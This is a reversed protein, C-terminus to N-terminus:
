STVPSCKMRNSWCGWAIAILAQLRHNQQVELKQWTADWNPPVFLAVAFTRNWPLNLASNTLVKYPWLYIILVVSFSVWWKQQKSHSWVWNWFRVFFFQLIFICSKQAVEHTWKWFAIMPTWKATVIFARSFHLPDYSNRCVRRAVRKWHWEFTWAQWTLCRFLLTTSATLYFLIFPIKRFITKTQLARIQPLIAMCTNNKINDENRCSWFYRM